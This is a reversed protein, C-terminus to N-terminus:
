VNRVAGLELRQVETPPLEATVLVVCHFQVQLGVPVPEAAAHVAVKAGVAVHEGEGDCTFAGPWIVHLTAFREPPM